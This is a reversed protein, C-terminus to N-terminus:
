GTPTAAHGHPGRARRSASTRGSAATRRSTDSPRRQRSAPRRMAKTARGTTVACPAVVSPWNRRWRSRHSRVHRRTAPGVHGGAFARRDAAATGARTREHLVRRVEAVQLGGRGRESSGRRRETARAPAFCRFAALLTSLAARFRSRTRARQDRSAFGSITGRPQSWRSRPHGSPPGRPVPVYGRRGRAPPRRPYACPSRTGDTRSLLFFFDSPSECPLSM